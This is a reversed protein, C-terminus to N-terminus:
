GKQDEAKGPRKENPLRFPGELGDDDNDPEAPPIDTQYKREPGPVPHDQTKRTPSRRRWARM